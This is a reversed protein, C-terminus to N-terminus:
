IRRDHLDESRPARRPLRIAFRTKGPEASELAVRGGYPELLRAAAYLGLGTGKPGPGSRGKTSFFPTFLKPRVDPPVGPGTDAVFICLEDGEAGTELRLLREGEKERLADVANKVLNALSQSLDGYVARVVPLDEGPRFVKQVHHKFFMDGEFFSLTEQVLDNLDVDVTEQASERLGRRLLTDLIEELHGALEHIKKVEEVDPRRSVLIDALGKIGALPTALNHAIGQALLGVAALRESHILRSQAEALSQLTDSLERTRHTVKAELTQSYEWLERELMRREIGGGAQRGIATLLRLHEETFSTRGDLTDTWLVGLTKRHAKLPVCVASRITSEPGFRPDATGDHILMSVGTRLTEDLVTRPLRADAAGAPWAAGEKWAGTEGDHLRLFCRGAGLADGVIEVIRDFVSHLSDESSLLRGIRYIAELPTAAPTEEGEVPIKGGEVLSIVSSEYIRRVENEFASGGTTEERREGGNREVRLFLVLEGAYITSRDRIRTEDVRLGDVFTGAASGGDRLVYGGDSVELTFHSEALDAGPLRIECDPGMGVTAKRGVRFSRGSFQGNQISLIAEM